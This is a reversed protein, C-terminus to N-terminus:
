VEPIGKGKAEKGEDTIDNGSHTGIVIVDDDHIVRGIGLRDPPMLGRNSESNSNSRDSRLILVPDSRSMDPRGLM